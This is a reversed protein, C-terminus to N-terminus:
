NSLSFQIPMETWMTLVYLYIYIYIIYIVTFSKLKLPFYTTNSM